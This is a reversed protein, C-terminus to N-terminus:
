NEFTIGNSADMAAIKALSEIRYGKQRLINGGGQYVKEIVIGIGAIQARAQTCLDILAELASGKALFDDIILVRDTERLYDKSVVVDYTKGHTFSEVKSQYVNTGVNKASSKKAFVVPVIPDFNFSTVCAVGIGSAEITLIKNIGQEKYLRYFEQGIENLFSVDIQHNLFCDVKLVDGEFIKGESVIKQELAKM